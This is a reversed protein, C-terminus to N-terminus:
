YVHVFRRARKGFIASISQSDRMFRTSHPDAARPHPPSVMDGAAQHVPRHGTRHPARSGGAVAHRASLRVTGPRRPRADGAPQSRPGPRAPSAGGGARGDRLM